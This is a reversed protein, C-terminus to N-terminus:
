STNCGATRIAITNQIRENFIKRTLLVLINNITEFIALMINDTYIYAPFM